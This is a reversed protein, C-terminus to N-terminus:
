AKPWSPTVPVWNVKRFLCSSTSSIHSVIVKLFKVIPLIPGQDGFLLSFLLSSYVTTWPEEESAILRSLTSELNAEPPTERAPKHIAQTWVHVKKQAWTTPCLSLSLQM